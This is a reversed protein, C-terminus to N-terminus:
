ELDVAQAEGECRRARERFHTHCTNADSWTNLIAIVPKGLFDEYAFGMQKTRARHGFGRLDDKGFWRQSRLDEPRKRRAAPM